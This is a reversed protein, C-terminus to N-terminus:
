NRDFIKRSSKDGGIETENVHLMRSKNHILSITLLYSARVKATM